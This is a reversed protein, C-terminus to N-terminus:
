SSDAMICMFVNQNADTLRQQAATDLGDCQEDRVCLVDCLFDHVTWEKQPESAERILVADPREQLPALLSDFLPEPPVDLQLRSM